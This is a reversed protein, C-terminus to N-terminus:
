AVFAQGVLVAILVTSVVLAIKQAIPHVYRPDFGIHPELM